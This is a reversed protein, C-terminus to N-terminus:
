GGLLSQQKGLIVTNGMRCFVIQLHAEIIRYQCQKAKRTCASSLFLKTM